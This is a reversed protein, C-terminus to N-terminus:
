KTDGDRPESQTVVVPCIRCAAIGAQDFWRCEARISCDPLEDAKALQPVGAALREPLGCRDGQWQQCAKEQCLASFRFRQEPSGHVRAIKQFEPTVEIRDKLYAISGDSRVIGLLIAGELAPASPCLKTKAMHKMKEWRRTVQNSGSRMSLM